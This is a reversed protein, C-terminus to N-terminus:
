RLKRDFSDFDKKIVAFKEKDIEFQGYWSYEYNRTIRFFDPYMGTPQLQMLYDFNTSDHKYQIINKDSLTKLLRLFMMRVALRYNNMGLAKDIEKQYNIAFIDETEADSEDSVIASSRRFLGANSNYLYLILFTVFGGIIVLWLLTQFFPQSFFSARQKPQRKKFVENAYWFAEDEKFQKMVSDPLQRLQLSDFFGGTFEKRLFYEPDPKTEDDQEESYTEEAAKEEEVVTVTSDLQYKLTIATDTGESNQADAFFCLLLILLSIGSRKLQLSIKLKKM